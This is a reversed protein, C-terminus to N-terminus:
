RGNTGTDGMKKAVRDMVIGLISWEVLEAALLEIVCGALETAALTSGEAAEATSPALKDAGAMRSIGCADEEETVGSTVVMESGVGSRGCDGAVASTGVISDRM